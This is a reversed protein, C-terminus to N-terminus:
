QNFYKEGAFYDNYLYNTLIISSWTSTRYRNHIFVKRNIKFKLSSKRRFCFKFLDPLLHILNSLLIRVSIQKVNLM